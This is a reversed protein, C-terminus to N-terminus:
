AIAPLDKREGVELNGDGSVAAAGRQPGGIVM